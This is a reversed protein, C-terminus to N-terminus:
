DAPLAVQPYWRALSPFRQLFSRLDADIVQQAAAGVMARLANRDPRVQPSQYLLRKIAASRHLWGLLGHGGSARLAYSVSTALRALARVRPRAAANVVTTVCAARFDPDVGLFRYLEALLADSDAAIREYVMLYINQAPFVALFPRLRRELLVADLLTM